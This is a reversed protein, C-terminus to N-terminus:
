NGLGDGLNIRGFNSLIQEFFSVERVTSTTVRRSLEVVQGDELGFEEINSVRGAGNFSVALIQRETIEPARYAYTRMRYATYFWAEDRMVGAAGPTGIAEAVAERSDGINVLALDEPPPIFGHNVFIESCAALGFALCLGVLGRRLGRKSRDM